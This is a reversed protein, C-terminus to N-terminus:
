PIRRPASPRAELDAADREDRVGAGAVGALREGVLLDEGGAGLGARAERADDPPEDGVELVALQRRERVRRDRIRERGLSPRTM